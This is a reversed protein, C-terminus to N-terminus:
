CLFGAMPCRHLSSIDTREEELFVERWGWPQDVLFELFENLHAFGESSLWGTVHVSKVQKPLKLFLFSNGFVLPVQDGPPSKGGDFVNLHACGNGVNEYDSREVLGAMSFSVRGAREQRM